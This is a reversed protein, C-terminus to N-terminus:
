ILDWSASEYSRQLREMLNTDVEFGASDIQGVPAIGRANCVFVAPYSGLDALTVPGRHARLGSREM